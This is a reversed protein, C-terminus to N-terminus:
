QTAANAPTAAATPKFKCASAQADALKDLQPKVDAMHGIFAILADLLKDLRPGIWWGFLVLAILLVGNTKLVDYIEPPM